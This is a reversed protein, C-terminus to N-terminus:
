HKSYLRSRRRFVSLLPFAMNDVAMGETASAKHRALTAAGDLLEGYDAQFRNEQGCPIRLRDGAIGSSLWVENKDGGEENVPHQLFYEVLGNLTKCRYANGAV